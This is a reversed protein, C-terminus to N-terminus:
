QQGGLQHGIATPVLASSTVETDEYRLGLAMEIPIKTDFTTCSSSTPTTRTKRRAVTPPSTRIRRTCRLTAPTPRLNGCRRSTGPSSSTSCTRIAAAASTTSTSGCPTRGGCKTPTSTTVPRVTPAAGPIRSCTRSRRAITSRPSEWASTSARTTTSTSTVTWDERSSKPWCTATVSARARSWADARCAPRHEGRESAVGREHGSLRRQLRGDDHRPYFGAVGLVANSGYPSDSGSEASSDHFDLSFGLRDTVDWALNFGASENENKTAFKAGGMSLDSNGAPITESYLIPAAVPGDTWSTVSPGFNFWVSLENRQQAM